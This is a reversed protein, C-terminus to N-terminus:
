NWRWTWIVDLSNDLGSQARLTFRQAARYILQWTGATANLSREYGVYWRRSLQKGLSVITERVEGDSQRLSVEDLGIARTFQDTLGEGEGSLLALAARQLLATDTRGLGDSARGLVLWSLKDIESLEPDSFLRIRPNVATGTIAVGARVDLNPRTAEIDLRPNEVPGTFVIAGRDIELKQGYAQYTGDATSVTGNVALRGNPSTIRLEGRLGTDIGRGRLRLKQGLNVRLDLAAKASVQGTPKPADAGNTADAATRAGGAPAARVVTVDDSLSPADTRSFDILGEDIGFQGTIAVASRDVRLRANGSTVIRRDVRGLLQFQEANLDLTLEPAAGFIAGGTLQLRGNGSRASFREVKARSGQLTIEVDGDTVNVGQLFNRVSLDRGTLDGTYELAGFTGGISAGVRLAGGLRWGAPVWTGWSGLNAVQLELVGSVPTQPAPWVAEPTTRAVIAGAAVGLHKGAVGQTFSWVGDIANLGFRLDTLGLAQTGSEETVSLDGSQRELVVDAQFTPASRIDMRAVVALDGGWGFDPQLRKLLPAVAFPELSARAEIRAPSASSAARWVVQDWRLAAGLLEARGPQLEFLLPSGSGSPGSPTSAAWQLHAAVDRTRVWPAAGAAASGIELRQLAGRWGSVGGAADDFLGGQANLVAVSGARPADPPTPTGQLGILWGPPSAQSEARLTLRHSRGTGELQLQAGDVATTGAILGSLTLQAEVPADPRTGIRWRAQARQVSLTDVRVGDLQAEGRTDLAPWRGDLQLTGNAAGALTADPQSPRVLRWLPTLRALSPATIAADWHDGTGGARLALRGTANLRNGALDLDVKAEAPGSDPARLSGEATVPVGALVSDRLALTARGRWAALAPPLTGPPSTSAVPAAAPTRGSATTRAPPTTPAAPAAPVSLDFDAKANVRHPGRRWPSDEAGPWWPVPDFDVLTTRGKLQWPAGPMAARQAQASLTARAAGATALAEHVELRQAGAQSSWSGHLKLQVPRALVAAAAVPGSTSPRTPGSRASRASAAPLALSRGNIDARLEVRTEDTAPNAPRSGSVQVPGNLLMAAARADLVGPQLAALVADLQWGGRTWRGQGTIRGADQSQTGLDATFRQVELTGPDDPRGRLDLDLQRLPLLGANWAGAQANRVSATVQAATSAGSSRVQAQGSLATRPAERLFARLDLADARADLDGLPWTAFPRLAASLDLAQPAAPAGGPLPAPQARLTAELRPGALPGRVTAQASWTANAMPATQTIQLSAELPLPASSGLTLVGSARLPERTLQALELRHQSGKEAGLHLRAQLDRLPEGSASGIVLSQVQLSDIQLEVPLQLDTPANRMAAAADPRGPQVQVRTARLLDLRVRAWANGEARELRLGRWQFGDLTVLGDRPLALLMREIQLDGGLVSGKVGSASVGPLHDLLWATGQESRLTWALTGIGGALLLATLPGVIWGLRVGRRVPPTATVREASM